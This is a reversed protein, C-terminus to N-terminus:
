IPQQSLQYSPNKRLIVFSHFVQPGDQIYERLISPNYRQLSLRTYLYGVSQSLYESLTFVFFQPYILSLFKIVFIHFRQYINIRCFVFLLSAYYLSISDCSSLSNTKIVEGSIIRSLIDVYKVLNHFVIVLGNM